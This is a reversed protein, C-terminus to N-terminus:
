SVAAVVMSQWHPDDCCAFWMAALRIAAPASSADMPQPTSVILRMGSPALADAGPTPRAM